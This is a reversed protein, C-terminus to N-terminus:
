SDYLFLEYSANHACRMGAIRPNMSLGEFVL